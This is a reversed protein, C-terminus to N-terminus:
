KEKEESKTAVYGVAAGIIFAAETATVTTAATAATAATATLASAFWPLAILFM